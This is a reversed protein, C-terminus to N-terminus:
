RQKHEVSAPHVGGVGGIDGRGSSSSVPEKTGPVTETAPLGGSPHAKSSSPVLPTGDVREAKFRLGKGLDIGEAKPKYELQTRIQARESTSIGTLEDKQRVEEPVVEAASTFSLMLQPAGIPLADREPQWTHITKGYMDSLPVFRLSLLSAGWRAILCPQM